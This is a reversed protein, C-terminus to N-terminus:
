IPQRVEADAGLLEALVLSARPVALVVQGGACRHLLDPLSAGLEGKGLFSTAGARLMSLVTRPDVNASVAVLEPCRQLRPDELIARCAAAGGGPMRVDVLALHPDTDLVLEVLQPGTAAQGVLEFRHDSDIALALAERMAADDDALVVRIADM